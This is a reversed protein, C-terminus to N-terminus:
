TKWHFMFRFLRNSVVMYDNLYVRLMAEPYLPIDTGIRYEQTMEPSIILKDYLHKYEVPLFTNTDKVIKNNKMLSHVKQYSNKNYLTYLEEFKDYIDVYYDMSKQSTIALFDCIDNMHEGYHKSPHRYKYYATNCLDCGTFGGTHGHDKEFSTFIFDKFNTTFYIEFLSTPNINPELEADMRLKIVIDYEKSSYQKRVENVKYVSYYQSKLQPYSCGHYEVFTVGSFFLASKLFEDNNEIVHAKPLFLHLANEIEDDINHTDFMNKKHGMCDNWIFMYTDMNVIERLQHLSNHLIKYYRLHGSLQIAVDLDEGVIDNIDYLSLIKKYTPQNYNITNIYSLWNNEDITSLAVVDHYMLPIPVKSWAKSLIERYNEFEMLNYCTPLHNATRFERSNYLGNESTINVDLRHLYRAKLSQISPSFTKKVSRCAPKQLMNVYKIHNAHRILALRKMNRNLFDDWYCKIVNQFNVKNNEKYEVTDIYDKEMKVLDKYTYEKTLKPVQFFEALYSNYLNIDYSVIHQVKLWRLFSVTPTMKPMEKLITTTLKAYESLENNPVSINARELLQKIPMNYFGHSFFVDKFEYLSIHNSVIINFVQNIIYNIDSQAFNFFVNEALYNEIEMYIFSHPNEQFYLDIGKRTDSVVDDYFSVTLSNTHSTFTCLHDPLHYCYEFTNLHDLIFLIDYASGRLLQRPHWNDYLHTRFHLNQNRFVYNGPSVSWHIVENHINYNLYYLYSHKTMKGCVKPHYTTKTNENIQNYAGVQVFAIDSHKKFVKLTSEIYTPHLIDDDFLISIFEGTARELGTNLNKVFGQNEPNQIYIIRKDNLSEIFANQQLKDITSNDDTIIIEMNKHTQNLVSKLANPLYTLFRNYTPIIISVKEM